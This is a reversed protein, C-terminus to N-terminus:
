VYRGRVICLQDGMDVIQITSQSRCFDHTNFNELFHM